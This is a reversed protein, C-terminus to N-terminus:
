CYQLKLNNIKPLHKSIKDTFFLMKLSALSSGILKRLPVKSFCSHVSCLFVFLVLYRLMSVLSFLGFLCVLLSCYQQSQKNLIFSLCFSQLFHPFLSDKKSSFLCCLFNFCRQDESQLTEETQFFIRHFSM